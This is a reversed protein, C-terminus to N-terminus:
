AGTTVPPEEGLLDKTAAMIANLDRSKVKRFAPLPVDAMSALVAVIKSMEGKVADALMLDGVEAERFTFEDYIKGNHEVPKSLKVTTM